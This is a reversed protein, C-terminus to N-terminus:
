KRGKWVTVFDNTKAMNKREDLFVCWQATIGHEPHVFWLAQCPRSFPVRMALRAYEDYGKLAGNVIVPSADGRPIYTHWHGMMLTDFNRGIQAESRGVKTAGRAIPGLAGIIGDGGKVGLTDGHTLLFRHGAVAFYADTEQPIHFTVRADNKFHKELMMYLHWEFSRTARQKYRPKKDYRGHNGSVCPVFVKGFADALTTLAAVLADYLLLLVEMTPADNTEALEEHIDGSIMDGGLACVIGPYDPNVMHHLSLKIVRETLRRIREQAIKINFENVGGVDKKRVVEGFHWDSWLTMPVGTNGLNKTDVIWKPPAATAAALQYFQERIKDDELLQDEAEKLARRLSKIEADKSKAQKTLDPKIGRARAADLRVRFASRALGVRKAAVPETGHDAYAQVAELCQADTLKATM